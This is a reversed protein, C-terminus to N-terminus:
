PISELQTDPLEIISQPNDLVQKLAEVAKSDPMKQIAQELFDTAQQLRGEMVAIYCALFNLEALQSRMSWNVLETTRTDYLDENGFLGPINVRIRALAPDRDLALHLYYASSMYEGAGLLAHSRALIAITNNPDWVSVLEFADAAKYFKGEKLLKQGLNMYQSVRVRVLNSLNSYQRQTQAARLQALQEKKGLLSEAEQQTKESEEKLENMLTDYIQEYVTLEPITSDPETQPRPVTLADAQPELEDPANKPFFLRLPDVSPTSNQEWSEEESLSEPYLDRKLYSTIPTTQQPPTISRTLDFSNFWDRSTTPVSAAQGWVSSVGSNSQARGTLSSVTRTPDFFPEYGASRRIFNSVELSSSDMLRSDTYYYSSYPVVGRFQLGGGINGSVVLDGYGPSYTRSPILGPRSASPVTTPSGIPSELALAAMGGFLIILLGIWKRKM